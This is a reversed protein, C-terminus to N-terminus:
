LSKYLRKCVSPGRAEFTSSSRCGSSSYPATWVPPASTISTLLTTFNDTWHLLSSKAAALPFFRQRTSVTVTFLLLRMQLAAGVILGIACEVTLPLLTSLQVPIDKSSAQINNDVVAHTETRDAVSEVCPTCRCHVCPRRIAAGDTSSLPQRQQLRAAVLTNTHRLGTHAISTAQKRKNAFIVSRKTKSPSFFIFYHLVSNNSLM